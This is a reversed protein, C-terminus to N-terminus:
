RHRCVGVQGALGAIIRKSTLSAALHDRYPKATQEGTLWSAEAREVSQERSAQAAGGDNIADQAEGYAKEQARVAEDEDGQPALSQAYPVTRVLGARKLGDDYQKLNSRDIRKAYSVM